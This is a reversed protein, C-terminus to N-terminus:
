SRTGRRDRAALHPSSELDSEEGPFLDLAVGGPNQGRLYHILSYYLSM